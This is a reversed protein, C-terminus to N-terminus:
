SPFSRRSRSLYYPLICTHFVFLLVSIIMLKNKNANDFEYYHKMAEIVQKPKQTTAGSDLYAINNNEIIPFDKRFDNGTM